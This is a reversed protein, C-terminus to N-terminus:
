IVVKNKLSGIGKLADNQVKMAEKQIQQILSPGHQQKAKFAKAGDDFSHDQLINFIGKSFLCIIIASAVFMKM